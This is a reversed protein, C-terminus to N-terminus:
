FGYGIGVSWVPDEHQEGHLWASTAPIQVGARLWARQTEGFAPLAVRLSPSLYLISGGSDDYDGDDTSDKAAWRFDLAFGPTLRDFARVGTAHGLPVEVAATVLFVDGYEYELAGETNVRYFASAYLAARELKHVGAAGFGADWSGTGTQLHPDEIGNERREDRGTPAKLWGRAELWTSPLADRNRWVVGSAALSVDGLGTLSAYTSQGGEVEEIGNKAWPVNLTLTVRDLPTWAVYLDLRRGENHEEDDGDDHADDETTGLAQETGEGASPVPVGGDEWSPHPHGEHGLQRYANLGAPAVVESSEHADAEVHAHPAAHGHPLLGSSKQWGRLELYVAVSGAPQSASGHTSFSPDGALCVSCASAGRAACCVILVLWGGRFRV